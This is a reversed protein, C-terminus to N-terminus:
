HQLGMSMGSPLKPLRPSAQRQSTYALLRPYYRTLMSQHSQNAHDTEPDPYTCTAGIGRKLCSQSIRASLPVSSHLVASGGPM